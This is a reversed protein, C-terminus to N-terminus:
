VHRKRPALSSKRATRWEKPIKAKTDSYLGCRGTQDNVWWIFRGGPFQIFHTAGVARETLMDTLQKLKKLTLM